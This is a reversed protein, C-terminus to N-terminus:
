DWAKGRSQYPKRESGRAFHIEYLLSVRIKLVDVENWKGFYRWEEDWLRLKDLFM